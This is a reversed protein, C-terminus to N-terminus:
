LYLLKSNRIGPCIQMCNICVYLLYECSVYNYLVPFSNTLIQLGIAKLMFTIMSNELEKLYPTQYM